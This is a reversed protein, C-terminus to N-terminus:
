VPRSKGYEPIAVSLADLVLHASELPGLGVALARLFIPM